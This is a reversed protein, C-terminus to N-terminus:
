EHYKLLIKKNEFEFVKSKKIYDWLTRNSIKLKESAEILSEYTNTIKKSEDDIQLVIKKKRTQLGYKPAEDTKLQCGWLGISKIGPLTTILFKKNFYAKLEIEHDKTYINNPYTNNLWEKYTYIFTTYRIRFTYGVHCKNNFFEEYTKLKNQNEPQFELKKPRIGVYIQFRSGYDAIFKDKFVFKEKMYVSFRHRIDTTCLAGRCWMRFAGLLDYPSTFYEETDGLECYEKVFKDFDTPDNYDTDIAKNQKIELNNEIPIKIETSLNKILELSVDFNEKINSKPLEESYNIFKDLFDCVIDITYIALKNSVNFWAFSDFRTSEDKNHEERHKDLIHHIVQEALDCNYCKKIYFMEANQNHTFYNRERDKINKTKGITVLSNDDDKNSKVAYITHGPESDYWKKVKLKTKIELQKKTRLLEKSSEKLLTEKELLMKENEQLEIQHQKEKEELQRKLEVSENFIIDDLINGAWKRFKKAIEKKSNYLLRYVGQSTLYLTDQNRKITDYAKRVVVEDGEDYNQISVRINTLKLANGIDSVKFLYIKKNNIEEAIISIPNNEFAKVICNNDEKIEENM